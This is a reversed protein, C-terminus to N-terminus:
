AIVQRSTRALRAIADDIFGVLKRRMMAETDPPHGWTHLNLLPDLAAGLDWFPLDDPEAMGAQALYRRTLEDVTHGDRAWHLELRAAALDFMPDGTAADEWDIVGIMKGDSWLLNGPWFDGHLLVAPREPIAPWARVMAERVRREDPSMKRDEPAAFLLRRLTDRVAPLSAREREPLDIAHLRALADAMQRAGDPIHALTLDPAGDIYGVVVVPAPFFVADPDVFVPAPAPYGAETLVQLLRYEVLAVNGTLARDREGHQRVVLRERLGDLTVIEVATITASVGGHLPTLGALRAGPRAADVLRAFTAEDRGTAVVRDTM